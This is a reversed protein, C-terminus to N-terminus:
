RKYKKWNHKKRSNKKKKKSIRHFYQRTESYSVALAQKQSVWRGKKWEKMNETIKKQLYKKGRSSKLFRQEVSM